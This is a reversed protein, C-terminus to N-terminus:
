MRANRGGTDAAKFIPSTLELMLMQVMPRFSRLQRTPLTPGDSFSRVTTPNLFEGNRKIRFDLHPGTAYGTCGVYGIVEGQTVIKGPKLGKAFRSLHMYSTEYGNVHRLRIFNGGGEDTSVACAQGNAVAKVPTGVPAAYDIGPHPRFIGLVPHLRRMTFESSIRKYQLPAKLFTKRLSKGNENYYASQGNEDEFLFARHAEGDHVFEAALIRGYGAFVGGRSRKEVVVSFSDGNRLGRLFDVECAFVNSLMVALDSKEGLAEMSDALGKGVTGSVRRIEEDYPIAVVKVDLGQPTRVVALRRRNDPEYEFGALDDDATLTIVYPRGVVLKHLPMVKESKDIVTQLEEPSLFSELIDSITDGPQVTSQLVEGPAADGAPASESQAAPAAAVTSPLPCAEPERAPGAQDTYPLQWGYELKPLSLSPMPVPSLAVRPMNLRPLTMRQVLRWTATVAFVAAVGTLLGLMLLKNQRSKRRRTHRYVNAM